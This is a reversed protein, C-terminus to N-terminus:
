TMVPRTVGLHRGPQGATEAHGADRERIAEAARSETQQPGPCRFLDRMVRLLMSSGVASRAALDPAALWRRTENM